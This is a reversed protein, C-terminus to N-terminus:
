FFGIVWCRMYKKSKQPKQWGQSSPLDPFQMVIYTVNHLM